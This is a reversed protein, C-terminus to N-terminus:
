LVVLYSFGKYDKIFSFIAPAQRPTKDLVIPPVDKSYSCVSPEEAFYTTKLIKGM